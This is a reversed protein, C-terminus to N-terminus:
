CRSECELGDTRLLRLDAPIVDGVALDVVDGPVLATVDLDAPGGDRLALSTHRLESHLQEVARASRYENVFGLGVSLGIIAGAPEEHIAEARTM